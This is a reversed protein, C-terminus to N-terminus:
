KEPHSASLDRGSRTAGRSARATLPPHMNEQGYKELLVPVLAGEAEKVFVLKEDGNMDIDHGNEERLLKKSFWFVLWVVILFDIGAGFVPGLLFRIPGM